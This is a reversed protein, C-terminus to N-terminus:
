NVACEVKKGKRITPVVIDLPARTHRVFSRAAAKYEASGFAGVMICHQADCRLESAASGNKREANFGHASRSGAV